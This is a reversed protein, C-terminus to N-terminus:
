EQIYFIKGTELKDKDLRVMTGKTLDYSATFVNLGDSNTGTLTFSMIRDYGEPIEIIAYRPKKDSDKKRKICKMDTEEKKENEEPYEREWCRKCNDPTIAVDCTRDDYNDYQCTEYGDFYDGPCGWCGGLAKDAIAYPNEKALKEKLTM